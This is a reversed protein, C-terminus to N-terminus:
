RVDMLYFSGRLSLLGMTAMVVDDPQQSRTRKRTLFGRALAQIKTASTTLDSHLNQPIEAIANLTTPNWTDLVQYWRGDPLRKWKLGADLLAAMIDSDCGETAASTWMIANWGDADMDAVRAGADLLASVVTESASNSVAAILPTIQGVGVHCNPDVGTRLLVNVCCESDAACADVLAKEHQARSMKPMLLKLMEGNYEEVAIDVANKGQPVNTLEQDAGHEILVRAEEVLDYEVARMLPTMGENNQTNMKAGALILTLVINPHENLIAYVLATDGDADKLDLDIGEIILTEV